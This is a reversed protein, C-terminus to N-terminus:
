PEQNKRAYNTLVSFIDDQIINNGNYLSNFKTVEQSLEQFKEPNQVFLSSELVSGVLIRDM